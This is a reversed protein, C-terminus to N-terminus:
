GGKMIKLLKLMPCNACSIGLQCTRCIPNGCASYKNIIDIINKTDIIDVDEKEEFVEWDDALLTSIFNLKVDEGSNNIIKEDLGLQLYAGDDWNTRRIKNGEKLLQIAEIINMKDELKKVLFVGLSDDADEPYGDCDLGAWDSGAYFRAVKGQERCVKDPNPVFVWFEKLFDYKGTNRLRQLLEYSAIEEDQEKLELIESYTKGNFQQKKTIMIREEPIEIWIDKDEIEKLQKQLDEIQKIIKEKTKM